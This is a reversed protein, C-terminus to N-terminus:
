SQIGVRLMEAAPHRTVVRTRSQKREKDLSVFLVRPKKFTVKREPIFVRYSELFYFSLPITNLAWCVSGLGCFLGSAVWPGPRGLKCTGYCLCQGLCHGGSGRAGHSTM